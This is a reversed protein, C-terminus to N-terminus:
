LTQEMCVVLTLLPFRAVTWESGSNTKAILYQVGPDWPMEALYWDLVNFDPGKTSKDWIEPNFDHVTM